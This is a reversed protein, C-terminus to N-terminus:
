RGQLVGSFCVFVNFGISGTEGFESPKIADLPVFVNALSVDQGKAPSAQSLLLVPSLSRLLPSDDARSLPPTPTSGASMGGLLPVSTSSSSSVGLSSSQPLGEGKGQLPDFDM